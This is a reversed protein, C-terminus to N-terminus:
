TSPPVVRSKVCAKVSLRRSVPTSMLHPTVDPSVASKETFVSKACSSTSTWCTLMVRKESNKGSFRWNKRSPCCAKSNPMGRSTSTANVRRIPKDGAPWGTGIRAPARRDPRWPRVLRPRIFMWVPSAPVSGAWFKETTRRLRSMRARDLM